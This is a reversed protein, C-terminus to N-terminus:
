RYIEKSAIISIGSSKMLQYGRRVLEFQKIVILDVHRPYYGCAIFYYNGDKDKVKEAYAYM